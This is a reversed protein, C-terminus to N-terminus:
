TTTDVRGDVFYDYDQPVLDEERRFAESVFIDRVQEEIAAFPLQKDICKAKCYVIYDYDTSVPHVLLTKRVAERIRRRARNRDVAKKGFEKKTSMFGFRPTGAEGLIRPPFQVGHAEQEKEWLKIHRTAHLQFLDTHARLVVKYNFWNQLPYKLRGCRQM